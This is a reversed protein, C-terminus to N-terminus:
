LCDHRHRAAAKTHISAHQPMCRPLCTCGSAAYMHSCLITADKTLHLLLSDKPHFCRGLVEHILAATPRHTRVYNLFDAFPKDAAQRHVYSLHIHCARLFDPAHLLHCSSCLGNSDESSRHKCVPPLQM